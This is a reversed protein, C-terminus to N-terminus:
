RVYIGSDGTTQGDSAIWRLMQYGAAVGAPVKINVQYVGALGPVLGAFSIDAERDGIRVRPKVRAEAPPDAPSAAGAAVTPNTQGLGLAYVELVDNAAAPHAADALTRTGAFVAAALLRGNPERIPIAEAATARVIARVSETQNFEAERVQFAANAPLFSGSIHANIQWPTAAQLPLPEQNMLLEIGGLRLPLPLSLAATYEVNTLNAGYATMLSGVSPAATGGASVVGRTFLFRPAYVPGLQDLRLREGAGATYIAAPFNSPPGVLFGVCAGDASIAASSAVSHTLATVDTVKVLALPDLLTSVRKAQGSQIFAVMGGDATISPSAAEAVGDSIRRLGTGDPRVVWIQANLGRETLVFAIWSGNAAIVAESAVSTAAGFRTVQQRGNGDLGITYVDSAQAAFTPGDPASSTFVFRGAQTIVSQGSGALAGQYVDLKRRSVGSAAVTVFPQDRAAAYLITGADPSLHVNRVCTSYCSVCLIRICGEKDIVAVRDSSGDLVHIEEEQTQPDRLLTYVIRGRASQYDLNTVGILSNAGEYFTLQTTNRSAAPSSSYINATGLVGADNRAAAYVVHGGDASLAFNRINAPDAELVLPAQSFLALPFFLCLVLRM